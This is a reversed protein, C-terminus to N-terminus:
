TNENNQSKPSQPHPGDCPQLCATNDSSTEYANPSQMGEANYLGLLPRQAASMLQYLGFM